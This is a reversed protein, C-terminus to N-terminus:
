NIINKIGEPKLHMGDYFDINKFEYQIPNYSGNIEIQLDDAYKILFTEVEIVSFYDKKIVNYVKPPYPILIFEVEVGANLIDIILLKFEEITKPSLNNFNKLSYIYGDLYSNISNLIQDNNKSRMEESYVLSGDKLKTNSENYIENTAQPQTNRKWINKLSSQFYSPSIIQKIQSVGEKSNCNVKLFTCYEESLTQWRNQGNNINFIWPDIGILFKEPLINSSKYLFYIGILDELSAGSVSSNIIKKNDFIEQGIQMNRSSGLVVIEPASDLQPILIKQLLREDYNSINTVNKDSLLIEVISREYDQDFLNAADGFYNVGGVVGLIIFLFIVSKILFQKM